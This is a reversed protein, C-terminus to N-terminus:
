RQYLARNKIGPAANFIPIYVFVLRTGRMAAERAIERIYVENDAEVIRSLARPVLTRKLHEVHRRHDALLTERPIRRDMEIWKGDEMRHSVSLDIPTRAYRVPDFAGTMGFDRPSLGAAFVELQRFPLYVIDYLVNHLLPDPPFAVASAPAVYKFAEHGWPHSDRDIAIVIVKPKKAQFLEHVIAWQVNRGDAIISFNAVAAPKGRAQLDQELRPASLGLVSTSPGVIAVDVPRSDFHIREYDWRLSQYITGDLLQFRQYADNPLLSAAVAALLAFGFIAAVARLGFAGRM